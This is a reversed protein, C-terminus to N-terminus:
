EYFKIKHGDIYKPERNELIAIICEMGNFLGLNYNDFNYNGNQAQIEKIEKAENIRNKLEDKEDAISMIDPLKNVEKENKKNNM